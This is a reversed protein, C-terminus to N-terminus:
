LYFEQEELKSVFTIILQPHIFITNQRLKLLLDLFQDMTTRIQHVHGYAHICHLLTRILPGCVM